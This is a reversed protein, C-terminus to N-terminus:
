YVEICKKLSINHLKHIGTWSYGMEYAIREWTQDHIYRRTLLDKLRSDEIKNIFNLVSEMRKSSEYAMDICQKRISSLKDIAKALKDPDPSSQVKAKSYDISLGQIRTETEELLRMLREYERKAQTYSKLETKMEDKTM